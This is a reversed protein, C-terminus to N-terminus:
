EKQVITSSMLVWCKTLALQGLSAPINALKPWLNCHTQPYLESNAVQSADGLHKNEIGDSRALTHPYLQGKVKIATQAATM